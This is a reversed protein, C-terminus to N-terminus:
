QLREAITHAFDSLSEDRAGFVVYTDWEGLRDFLSERVPLVEATKGALGIGQCLDESSIDRVASGGAYFIPLVFLHDDRRLGRVFTERYEEKMLRTPGFGHPQFIYCIRERIEGVTEMLSLIKHPNHAYDDIVLHRENQLHVDFRREIGSFDPLIAAIDELSAGLQALLAIVALANYLNYKGPLLVRFPIGHVRFDTHFPSCKIGEARYDSDTVISFTVPNDFSCRSLHADDNNLIIREQTNRGLIEFMAATTAIPNHDLHLNTIISFSPSYSIITGDSECAEFVFIDSEGSLSNGLNGHNRFQRVRGGGIFNPEMGLKNMCYALMGSTTSKGSTGAVAIARYPGILESLYQPRSKIAVGLEKARALEPHDDEIATSFVACDFSQDIGSGDHRAISIGRAQLIRSIPHHPIRDFVRDSGAVTHGKDAMFVAIASVGSGGIGSFFLKAMYNKITLYIAIFPM